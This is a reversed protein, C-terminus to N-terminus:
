STILHLFLNWLSHQCFLSKPPTLYAASCKTAGSGFFTNLSNFWLCGWGVWCVVPSLVSKTKKYNVFILVYKLSAELSPKTRTALGCPCCPYMWVKIFGLVLLMKLEGLSGFLNNLFGKFFFWLGAELLFPELCTLTGCFYIEERAYQRLFSNTHKGKFSFIVVSVRIILKRYRTSLM